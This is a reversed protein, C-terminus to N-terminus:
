VQLSIRVAIGVTLDVRGTFSHARSVYFCLWRGCEVELVEDLITAM